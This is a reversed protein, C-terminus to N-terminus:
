RPLLVAPKYRPLGSTTLSSLEVLLQGKANVDRVNIFAYGSPPKVLTNLDILQGKRWVAARYRGHYSLAAAGPFPAQGFVDGNDAVLHMGEKWDAHVDNPLSMLGGTESWLYRRDNNTTGDTTYEGLLVQGSSNIDLVHLTDDPLWGANATIERWAQGNWFWARPKIFQTSSAPNKESTILAIQESDNMTLMRGGVTSMIDAQREAVVPPHPIERTSAPGAVILRGPQASYWMASAALTGSATTGDSTFWDATYPTFAPWTIRQTGSWTVFSSAAVGKISELLATVRGQADIGHITKASFGSPLPLATPSSSGSRWVMAKYLTYAVPFGNVFAFGASSSCQGAVDGNGGIFQTNCSTWSALFPPSLEKLTYSTQASAPLAALAATLTVLACALASAAASGSRHMPPFALYPSPM